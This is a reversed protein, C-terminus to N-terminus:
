PAAPKAGFRALISSIDVSRSAGETDGIELRDWSQANPSALRRRIGESTETCFVVLGDPQWQAWHHPTRANPYHSGNKRRRKTMPLDKASCVKAALLDDPSGHYAVEDAYTIVEVRGLMTIERPVEGFDLEIAVRDGKTEMIGSLDRTSVRRRADRGIPSCNLLKAQTFLGLMALQARTGAWEAALYYDGEVDVWQQEDPAYQDVSVAVAMGCREALTNLNRVYRPVLLAPRDTATSSM